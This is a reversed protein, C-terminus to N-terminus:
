FAAVTHKRNNNANVVIQYEFVREHMWNFTIYLLASSAIYLTFDGRSITKNIDLKLNEYVIEESTSLSIYLHSMM